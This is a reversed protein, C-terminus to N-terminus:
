IKIPNQSISQFIWTIVYLFRNILHVRSVWWIYDFKEDKPIGLHSCFTCFPGSLDVVICSSFFAGFVFLWKARICLKETIQAPNKKETCYKEITFWLLLVKSIYDIKTLLIYSDRKHPQCLDFNAKRVLFINVTNWPKTELNRSWIFSVSKISLGFFNLKFFFLNQLLIVWFM